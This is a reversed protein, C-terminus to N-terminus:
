RRWRRRTSMSVVSQARRAEVWHLVFLPRLNQVNGPLLLFILVQLLVILAHGYVRLDHDTPTIAAAGKFVVLVAVVGLSFEGLPAVTVLPFRLLSFSM